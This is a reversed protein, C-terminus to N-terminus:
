TSTFKSMFNSEFKEWSGGQRIYTYENGINELSFKLHLSDLDKIFPYAASYNQGNTSLLVSPQKELESIGKLRNLCSHNDSIDGCMFRLYKIHDIYIKLSDYLDNSLKEGQRQSLCHRCNVNCVWADEIGIIFPYDPPHALDFNPIRGLGEPISPINVRNGYFENWRFSRCYYECGAGIYDNKLLSERVKKIKSGNWIELISNKNINGLPGINSYCCHTVNGNGWIFITTWPNSCIFSM